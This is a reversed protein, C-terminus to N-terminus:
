KKKLASLIQGQLYVPDITAGLVTRCHPCTIAVAPYVLSTGYETRADKAEYYFHHIDTECKPCLAVM